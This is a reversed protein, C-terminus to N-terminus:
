DKRGGAGSPGATEANRAAVVDVGTGLIDSAVVEGLRVPAAAVVQALARRCPALLHKPVPAATKVPLRQLTSGQIRVTTTLTRVPHTLEDIAYQEGRPCRNGAVRYNGAAGTIELRCGVPCVVCTLHQESM